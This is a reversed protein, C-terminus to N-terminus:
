VEIEQGTQSSPAPGLIAGDELYVWQGVTATGRAKVVAGSVLEVTAGDTEVSLVEGVDQVGGPILRLFERYLNM